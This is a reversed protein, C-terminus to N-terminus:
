RHAHTSRADGCLRAPAEAIFKGLLAMAERRLTRSAAINRSIRRDIKRELAQRLAVPIQLNVRTSRKRSAKAATQQKVTPREAKGLQREARPKIKSQEGAAASSTDSAAQEASAAPGLGLIAAVVLSSSFGRFSGLM